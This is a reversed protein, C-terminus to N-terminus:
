HLLYLDIRDTRLRRLSRECAQPFGRHTANHPYVKSVIFVEDRRDAIVEAILEEARGEGYMEATDILTLGRDLGLRLTAIEQARLAPKEAMKWTGRGLAPLREGGLLVVSKMFRAEPAQAACKHVASANQMGPNFKAITM